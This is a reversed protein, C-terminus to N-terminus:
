KWLPPLLVFGHRPNRVSQLDQRHAPYIWPSISFMFLLRGELRPTAPLFRPPLHSMWLLHLCSGESREKATKELHWEAHKGAWRTGVKGQRNCYIYFSNGQKEKNGMQASPTKGKGWSAPRPPSGAEAERAAPLPTRGLVPHACCFLLVPVMARVGAKSTATATPNRCYGTIPFTLCAATKVSGLRRCLHQTDTAPCSM